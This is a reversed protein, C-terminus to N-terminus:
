MVVLSGTLSGEYADTWIRADINVSSYAELSNSDLLFYYYDNDETYSLDSLSFVEYDLSLYINKYSVTSTKAYVYFLNYHQTKSTANRLLVNEPELSEYDKADVNTLTNFGDFEILVGMDKFSNAIAAGQNAPANKWIPISVLVIVLVLIINKLIDKVDVM